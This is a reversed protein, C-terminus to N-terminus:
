EENNYIPYHKIPIHDTITRVLSSSSHYKVISKLDGVLVCKNQSRSIAVNLLKMDNGNVEGDDYMSKTNATTVDFIILQKEGGQFRHVTDADVGKIGADVLM